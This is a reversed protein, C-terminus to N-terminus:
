SWCPPRRTIQPPAGPDRPPQEPVAESPCGQKSEMTSGPKVADNAGFCVTVLNRLTRTTWRFARPLLGVAMRTNYGSYGRLIVDARRAHLRRRSRGRRVRRGSARSPSPTGSCSSAGRPQRQRRRVRRTRERVCRRRRRRRATRQTARRRARRSARLRRLRRCERFGDHLPPKGLGSRQIRNVYKTFIGAGRRPIDRLVRCHDRLCFADM